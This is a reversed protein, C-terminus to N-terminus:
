IGTFGGEVLLKSGKGGRDGGDGVGQWWVRVGGIDGWQTRGGVGSGDLEMNHDGEAEIHAVVSAPPLEEEDSETAIAESGM